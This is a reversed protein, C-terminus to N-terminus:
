VIGATMLNEVGFVQSTQLSMCVVVAEWCQLGFM